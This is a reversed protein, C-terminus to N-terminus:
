RGAFSSAYHSLSKAERQLENSESLLVNGMYLEGDEDTPLPLPAKRRRGLDNFV